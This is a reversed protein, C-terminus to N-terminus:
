QAGDPKARAKWKGWAWVALEHLGAVVGGVVLVGLGGGHTLAIALGWDGAPVLPGLSILAMLGFIAIDHKHKPFLQFLLNAWVGIAIIVLIVQTTFDPTM